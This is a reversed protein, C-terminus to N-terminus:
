DDALRLPVLRGPEHRDGRLHVFEGRAGSMV